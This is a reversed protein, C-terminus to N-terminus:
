SPVTPVASPSLETALEREALFDEYASRLEPQTTVPSLGSAERQANLLHLCRTLERMMMDQAVGAMATSKRHMAFAMDREGIVGAIIGNQEWFKREWDKAMAEAVALQNRIGDVEDGVESASVAARAIDAELEKHAIREKEKELLLVSAQERARSARLVEWAWLGFLAVCLGWAVMDLGM